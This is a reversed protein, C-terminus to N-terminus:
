RRLVYVDTGFYGDPGELLNTALSEFAIWKGKKSVTCFTSSDDTEEGGFSVSIREVTGKKMDKLYVDQVGNGDPPGLNNAYSMIVVFKGDASLEHTTSLSNAPTGDAAASVLETRGKKVDRRFVNSFAVEQGVLNQAASAFSVYRGNASVDFFAGSDADGNQEQDGVSVLTLTGKKLDRLYVDRTGNTDEPVLDDWCSFVVYRGNPTIVPDNSEGDTPAGTSTLSLRTTTGLKRDRLFVDRDGNSDGPVLNGALSAFVVWRGNSSVSPTTSSMSGGQGADNVSIWETVGTKTDYLYVDVTTTGGEVIQPDSSRYVVYRGSASLAAELCSMTPDGGDKTRSVQEIAGSKLDVRYIDTSSDGTEALLNTAGSQFVLWRGNDSLHPKFSGALPVVGFPVRRIEGKPVLGMAVLSLASLIVVVTARRM